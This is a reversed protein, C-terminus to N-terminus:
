SEIIEWEQKTNVNAMGDQWEHPLDLARAEAFDLLGRISRSRSEYHGTEICAPLPNDTYYANGDYRLLRRLSKIQILPMDVPAFLLKEYRDKFRELLEIMARAPGDHRVADPIGDYGPVTGSIYVDACGAECLLASMHDVLPKGKYDLLAKNKGMRSSRGGALVIGATGTRGEAM